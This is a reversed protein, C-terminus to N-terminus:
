AINARTFPLPAAGCGQQKAFHKVHGKSKSSFSPLLKKKKKKEGDENAM